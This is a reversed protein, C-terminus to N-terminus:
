KKKGEQSLKNTLKRTKEQSERHNGEHTDTIHAQGGVQTQEDRSTKLVM